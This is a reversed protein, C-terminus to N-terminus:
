KQCSMTEMMVLHHLASTPRCSRLSGSTRSPQSMMMPEIGMTTM